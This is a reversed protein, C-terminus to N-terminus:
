YHENVRWFTATTQATTSLTPTATSVAPNVQYLNSEFSLHTQAPEGADLDEISPFRDAM